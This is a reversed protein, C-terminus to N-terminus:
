PLIAAAPLDPWVSRLKRFFFALAAVGILLLQSQPQWVSAAFHFGVAFGIIGVFLWFLRRGLTLLVTGILINIVIILNDDTEIL